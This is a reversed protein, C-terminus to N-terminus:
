IVNLLRLETLHVLLLSELLFLGLPLLVKLKIHEYCLELELILSVQSLRWGVNIFFARITHCLQSVIITIPSFWSVAENNCFSIWLLFYLFDEPSWYNSFLFVVLSWSHFNFIWIDCYYSFLECDSFGQIGFVFSM